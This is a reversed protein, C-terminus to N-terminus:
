FNTRHRVRTGFEARESLLVSGNVEGRLAELNKIAIRPRWDTLEIEHGDRRARRLRPTPSFNNKDLHLRPLAV